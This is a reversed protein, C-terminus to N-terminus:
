RFFMQVIAVLLLMEVLMGAFNEKKLLAGIARLYKREKRAAKMYKRYVYHHVIEANYLVQRWEAETMEEEANTRDKLDKIETVNEGGRRRGAIM